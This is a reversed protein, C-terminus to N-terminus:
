VAENDNPQDSNFFLRLNQLYADATLTDTTGTRTIKVEIDCGKAPTGGATIDTSRPTIYRTDTDGGTGDITVATGFAQTTATGDNLARASIGFEVGTGNGGFAFRLTCDVGPSLSFIIRKFDADTFTLDFYYDNTGAPYNAPTGGGIVNFNDDVFTFEAGPMPDACEITVRCQAPRYGNAWTGSKTFSVALLGGSSDVVWGSSDIMPPQSTFNSTEDIFAPTADGHQWAMQATLGALDWRYPAALKLLLSSDVGQPFVAGLTDDFYADSGIVSYLDSADFSLQQEGTLAAWLDAQDPLDGTIGGWEVSSDIAINGSGLISTNNITKINTGSVLTEQKTDFEAQLDTQDAIDGTIGGWIVEVAGGSYNPINLTEGDFTASGSIGTTTLTIPPQYDTGSSAASIATGNGKLLGTVTTSLTISPTTTPNAVTGALGNASAVGVSTVTGANGAYVPINLEGTDPDYTAAGSTGNTTFTTIQGDPVLALTRDSNLRYWKGAVTTPSGPSSTARSGDSLFETYYPATPTPVSNPSVWRLILGSM